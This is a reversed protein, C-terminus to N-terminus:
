QASEPEPPQGSLNRCQAAMAVAGFYSSCRGRAPGRSSGRGRSPSRSAAEQALDIACLMDGQQSWELAAQKLIGKTLWPPLDASSSSSSQAASAAEEVKEYILRMEAMMEEMRETQQQTHQMKASARDDIGQVLDRLENHVATTQQRERDGQRALKSELNSCQLEAQEALEQCHRSTKEIDAARQHVISLFDNGQKRICEELEHMRDLVRGSSQPDLDALTQELYNLRGIIEKFQRVIYVSDEPRSGRPPM